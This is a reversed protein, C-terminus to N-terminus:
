WSWWHVLLYPGSLPVNREDQTATMNLLYIYGIFTNHFFHQLSKFTHLQDERGCLCRGVWQRQVSRRSAQPEVRAVAGAEVAEEAELHGEEAQPPGVAEVGVELTAM